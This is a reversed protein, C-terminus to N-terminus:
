CLSARVVLVCQVFWCVSVVLVGCLRAFGAGGAFCGVVDGVVLFWGM